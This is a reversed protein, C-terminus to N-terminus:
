SNWAPEGTAIQLESLANRAKTQGIGTLKYFRRRPRGAESPDIDEWEGKIWGASELRALIPYLTGSGIKAAKSIQAGSRGERPRELLYRLTKLTQQSLRIDNSAM